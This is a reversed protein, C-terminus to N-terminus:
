EAGEPRFRPHTAEGRKWIGTTQYEKMGRRYEIATVLPDYIEVPGKIGRERQWGEVAVIQQHRLETMKMAMQMDMRELEAKKSWYAFLGNIISSILAGVAASGLLLAITPNM